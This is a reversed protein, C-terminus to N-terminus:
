TRAIGQTGAALRRVASALRDNLHHSCPPLAALDGSPVTIVTPLSSVTCPLDEISLKHPRTLGFFCFGRDPQRGPTRTFRQPLRGQTGPAQQTDSAPTALGIGTSSTVPRQARVM